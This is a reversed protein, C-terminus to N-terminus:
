KKQSKSNIFIILSKLQFDSMREATYFPMYAKQHAEPYTGNRVTVFVSKEDQRRFNNKLYRFTLFNDDLKFDSIGNQRNHCNECGYNYIYEGIELDASFSHLREETPILLAKSAESKLPYKSHLLKVKEANGVSDSELVEIEEKNLGLESIKYELTWLYHLVYELEETTFKRGQSCASACLQIANKLDYQSEKALDGYKEQYIGNYWSTRNVVGKLTSGPVYDMEQSKMYNLDVGGHLSSYFASESKLNHCDTCVFYKSQKSYNKIGQIKGTTILQFGKQAKVSDVKEIFHAPPNEGLEILVEQVSKYLLVNGLVWFSSLFVILLVVTVLFITKSKLM